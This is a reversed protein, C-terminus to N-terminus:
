ESCCSVLLSTMMSLHLNLYSIHPRGLSWLFFFVNVGLDNSVDQRSLPKDPQSVTDPNCFVPFPVTSLTKFEPLFLRLVSPLAASLACLMLCWHMEKMADHVGVPSLYSMGTSCPTPLYSPWDCTSRQKQISLEERLLHLMEANHVYLDIAPPWRSVREPHQDMHVQDWDEEMHFVMFSSFLSSGLDIDVFKYRAGSDTSLIIIFHPQNVQAVAWQLHETALM